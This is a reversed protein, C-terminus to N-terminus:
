VLTYIGQSYKATVTLTKQLKSRYTRQPGRRQSHPERARRRRLEGIDLDPKCVLVTIYSTEIGVDLILLFFILKPPRTIPQM